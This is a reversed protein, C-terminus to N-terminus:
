GMGSRIGRGLMVSWVQSTAHLTGSKRREVYEDKRANWACDWM